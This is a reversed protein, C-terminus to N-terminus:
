LNNRVKIEYKYIIRGLIYILVSYCVIEIIVYVRLFNIFSLEKFFVLSIIAIFYFLQWLGYVKIKRMSVFLSSFSSVLFNMSYSWVLIKSITGSFGWIDGFFIKFISIGFLQIVLVEFVIICSILIIIPKIDHIFSEHKQSKEAVKQLLVNSISSAVLALPISLLFKSADYFGTNETSYYRSIFLAPLAYSCASMLAPLLSYKPFDLYKKFVYKIKTWRFYKLRFGNKVSQIYVTIVNAIQGIVDGYILGKPSKLFALSIQAGGEISRRILKNISTAYFRKKRILWYNFCQYASYLFVTLPIVYLVKPSIKDTLNLLDLILGGFFVFVVLLVINIVFSLSLSLLLINASEKDKEPLVIAYDYRLTIIVILISVISLYISFLGFSEPSFYRRLIPQLLLSIGQALITGSVLVSTNRLTESKILHRIFLQFITKL